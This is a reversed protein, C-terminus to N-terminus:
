SAVTSAPARPRWKHRGGGVSAQGDAAAPRLAAPRNGVLEGSREHGHHIIVPEVGGNTGTAPARRATFARRAHRGLGRSRQRGRHRAFCHETTGAPMQATLVRSGPFGADDGRIGEHAGASRASRWSSRTTLPADHLSSCPGQAVCTSNRQPHRHDTPPCRGHWAPRAVTDDTPFDGERATEPSTRSM